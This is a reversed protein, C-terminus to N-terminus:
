GNQLWDILIRNVEDPKEQQSWHGCRELVHCTLDPIFPTMADIQEPSVVVDDEAAIFLTPVNVTEPVGEMREWNASWNRYWNIPGTFGTLQFAAAFYDLEAPDLLSEGSPQERAMTALLSLVRQRPPLQEFRERTIQHKRMLRDLFRRPDGAFVADAEASDQFNVIYFDDGLRARMLEIPDVPPRPWYPINLNALRAIKEPRLLSFHWLVIAGWDHGVFMARDLDLADLLGEIDAVLEDIHYDGVEVPVSTRGYGRQDIAIARFGAAALAPLQFRWSFALEPFGHLFIVAPGEGQEYVAMRIGNTNIFHPEPFMQRCERLFQSRIDSENALFDFRLVRHLSAARCTARLLNDACALRM